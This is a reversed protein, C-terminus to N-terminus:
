VKGNLIGKTDSTDPSFFKFHNTQGIEIAVRGCNECEFIDQATSILKDSILDHIISSDKLDTPYPPADFHTNIWDLRKNSRIADTLEDISDTLANSVDILHVDPLIYGKYVIDNTQDVIVHGCTCRLKSM